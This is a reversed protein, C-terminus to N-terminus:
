DSTEELTLVDEEQTPRTHCSLKQGKLQGCPPRPIAKEKTKKFAARIQTDGREKGRLTTKEEKKKSEHRSKGIGKVKARCDASKRERDKGREVAAEGERQGLVVYM